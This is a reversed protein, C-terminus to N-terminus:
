PSSAQGTEFSPSVYRFCVSYMNFHETGACPCGLITAFSFATGFWGAQIQQEMDKQNIVEKFLNYIFWFYQDHKSLRNHVVEFGKSEVGLSM